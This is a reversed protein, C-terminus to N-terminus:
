AATKLHPIDPVVLRLCQISCKIDHSIDDQTCCCLLVAAKCHRLHVLDESRVCLLTIVFVTLSNIFYQRDLVPGASFLSAISYACPCLGFLNQDPIAPFRTCASYPLNKGHHSDTQSQSVRVQYLVTRSSTYYKGEAPACPRVPYSRAMFLRNKERLDYKQIILIKMSRALGHSSTKSAPM